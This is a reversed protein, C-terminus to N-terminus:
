QRRTLATFYRLDFSLGVVSDTEWEKRTPIDAEAGAFADGVAVGVLNNTKVYERSWTLNVGSFLEFSLGVGFRDGFDSIGASLVFGLRDAFANDHLIDRGRFHNEGSFFGRQFYRPLGYIVLSAVYEPGSDSPGKDFLFTEDGETRLGFERDHLETFLAGIQLTARFRDYQSITTEGTTQGQTWTVKVTTNFCRREALEHVKPEATSQPNFVGFASSDGIYINPASREISCPDFGVDGGMDLDSPAVVGVIIRDGIAPYGPSTFCLRGDSAFIVPVIDSSAETVQEESLKDRWWAQAKRRCEERTVTGSPATGSPSSASPAPCLQEPVGVDEGAANRFGVIITADRAIAPALTEREETTLTWNRNEITAQFLEADNVLVYAQVAAEPANVSDPLECQAHSLGARLSMLIGLCAVVRACNSKM